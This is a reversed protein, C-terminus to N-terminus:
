AVEWYGLGLHRPHIQTHVMNDVHSFPSVPLEAGPHCERLFILHDGMHILGSVLHETCSLSRTLVFILFRPKLGHRVKISSLLAKWMGEHTQPDVSTALGTVLWRGGMIAMAQCVATVHCCGFYILSHMTLSVVLTGLNRHYCNCLLYTPHHHIVSM